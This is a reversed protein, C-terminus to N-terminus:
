ILQTDENEDDKIEEVEPQTTVTTEEVKQINFTLPKLILEQEIGNLKLIINIHNIIKNRLNNVILRNCLNYQAELIAGESSFGADDISLGILGKSVKHAALIRNITRENTDAFVNISDSNNTIPTFEVPRDENNNRFSIIINNANDSGTFTAEINKIIMAREEDDAVQNMTLIGSPTFLNLTANYDFKKMEIDTRIADIASAYHVAPYYADFLNYTTYVLLYSKGLSINLDDTYNLIDIEIPKNVTTNSWDESLYAKKIEGNKDKKAFRVTSFPQHFFSYTKDNKNKIIQIAYGGFLVLDKAVKYLLEDWSELYNPCIENKDNIQMKKYDVGDGVIANTLFDVCASHIISNHYLDLLHIPYLNDRGYVVWNYASKDNIEPSNPIHKNLNIIKFNNNTNVRNKSGLPRGKKTNSM